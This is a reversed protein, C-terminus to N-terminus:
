QKIVSVSGKGIQLIYMGNPLNSLDVENGTVTRIYSGHVTFVRIEPLEVNTKINVKGTTPNPYVTFATVQPTHIGDIIDWKAYLTINGTVVDTAFNWANICDTEKYWGNFDYNEKTPAAPEAIVTNYAVNTLATVNSGGQADFTVTYLNIRWKAYLTIDDTVVDAAFNWVNVCGAEKYWGDFTYGEKTPATPATITTNFAVDTLAAVDSGGQADFTITYGSLQIRKVTITGSFSYYWWYDENSSIFQMSTTNDTIPVSANLAYATGEIFVDEVETLNKYFIPNPFTVDEELVGVIIQQGYADLENLQTDSIM